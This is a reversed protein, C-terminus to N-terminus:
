EKESGRILENLLLFVDCGERRGEEEEEKRRVPVDRGGESVQPPPRTPIAGGVVEDDDLDVVGLKKELCLQAMAETVTQDLAAILGVVHLASRPPAERRRRRRRRDQHRRWRRLGSPSSSYSDVSSSTTTSSSSTCSAARSYRYLRHAGGGTASSRSLLLSGASSDRLFSTPRQHAGHRRVSLRPSNSLASHQSGMRASNHRRSPVDSLLTRGSSLQNQPLQLGHCHPPHLHTPGDGEHTSPSPGADPRRKHHRHCHKNHRDNARHHRRAAAYSSRSPIEQPRPTLGGPAATASKQPIRDVEEGGTAGASGTVMELSKELGTIMKSKSTCSKGDPESQQPHERQKQSSRGPTETREDDMPELARPLLTSGQEVLGASSDASSLTHMVAIMEPSGPTAPPMTRNGRRNKNKKKKKKKGRKEEAEGSRAGEERPLCPRPTAAADMASASQQVVDELADPGGGCVGSNGVSSLPSLTRTREHQIADAHGATSPTSCPTEAPVGVGGGLEIPMGHPKAKESKHGGDTEMSGGASPPRCGKTKPSGGDEEGMVSFARTNNTAPKLQEGSACLGSNWSPIERKKKTKTKTTAKPGSAASGGRNAQHSSTASYGRRARWSGQRSPPPTHEVEDLDDVNEEHRRRGGTSGSPAALAGNMEGRNRKHMITTTIGKVYGGAERVLLAGGLLHHWGIHRVGTNLVVDGRGAAVYALAAIPHYGYQVQEVDHHLLLDTAIEMVRQQEKARHREDELLALLRRDDDCSLCLHRQQQDARGGGAPSGGDRPLTTPSFVSLSATPRGPTSTGGLLASSSGNATGGPNLVTHITSPFVVGAQGQAALASGAPSAAAPAPAPAPASQRSHLFVLAGSLPSPPVAGLATSELTASLAVAPITPHHSSHPQLLGSGSGRTGSLIPQPHSRSTHPTLLHGASISNTNTGSTSNPGGGGSSSAELFTNVSPALPRTSIPHYAHHPPPTPLTGPANGQNPSSCLRQSRNHVSAGPGSEASGMLRVGNLYAGRDEISTFLEGGTWWPTFSVHAASSAYPLYTGSAFGTSGSSLHGGCPGPSSPSHPAPPPLQLSPSRELVNYSTTFPLIFPSPTCSNGLHPPAAGPGGTSSTPSSSPPLLPPPPPPTHGRGRPSNTHSHGPSHLFIGDHSDTTAYALIHNPNNGTTAGASGVRGGTSSSGGRFISSNGPGGGASTPHPLPTLSELTKNLGRSAGERPSSSPPGGPPQPQPTGTGSAGAGGSFGGTSVVSGSRGGPHYHPNSPPAPPANASTAASFPANHSGGGGMLHPGQHGLRSPSPIPPAHPNWAFKERTFPFFLVAVEPQSDHLLTISVYADPLGRLASWENFDVVWTYDAVPGAAGTSTPGHHHLQPSGSNRPTLHVVHPLPGPAAGGALSPSLPSNFTRLPHYATGSGTSAGPSVMAGGNHMLQHHHHHHHSGPPTIQGPLPGPPDIRPFPVPGSPQVGNVAGVGATPCRQSRHRGRHRRRTGSAPPPPQPQPSPLAAPVGKLSSSSHSAAPSTTSCSSSSSSSASSPSSCRRQGKREVAASAATIVNKPGTSRSARGWLFSSPSGDDGGVAEKGNEEEATLSSLASSSSSSTSASVITNAKLAADTSRVCSGSSSSDSSSSSASRSCTASSLASDDEDDSAISGPSSTASSSSSTPSSPPSPVVFPPAEGKKLVRMQIIPAPVPAQTLHLSRQSASAGPISAISSGPYNASPNTLHIDLFTAAAGASPSPPPHPVLHTNSPSSPRLQPRTTASPGPQGPTAPTQLISAGPAGGSPEGGGPSGSTSPPAVPASHSGQPPQSAPVPGSSNRRPPTESGSVASGSSGRHHHLLRSRPSSQHLGGTAGVASGNIMMPKPSATPTSSSSSSTPCLGEKLSVRNTSEAARCLQQQRDSDDDELPAGEGSIKLKNRSGLSGGQPPGAAPSSHDRRRPSPLAHPQCPTRDEGGAALDDPHNFGSSGGSLLPPLMPTVYNSPPPPPTAARSGAGGGGGTLALQLGLPSTPSRPTQQQQQQQQRFIGGLSTTSTIVSPPAVGPSASRTGLHHHYPSGPSILNPLGVLGGSVTSARRSAGLLMQDLNSPPATTTTTTHGATLTTLPVGAAAAQVVRDSYVQLYRAVIERARYMVPHEDEPGGMALPPPSPPATGSSSPIAVNAQNTSTHTATMGSTPPSPAAFSSPHIPPSAGRSGGGGSGAPPSLLPAHPRSGAAGSGSASNGTNSRNHFGLSPPTPSSNGLGDLDSGVSNSTNHHAAAGSSIGGGSGASRTSATTYISSISNAKPRPPPNAAFSPPPLVATGVAVLQQSSAGAPSPVNLHMATAVATSAVSGGPTALHAAANRQRQEEEAQVLVAAGRVAATIAVGLAEELDVWAALNVGGAASATANLNSLCSYRGRDGGANHVFSSSGHSGHRHRHQRRQHPAGHQPAFSPSTGGMGPGPDLLGGAASLPVNLDNRLTM